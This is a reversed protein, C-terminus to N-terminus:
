AFAVSLERSILSAQAVCPMCPVMCMVLGGFLICQDAFSFAARPWGIRRTDPRSWLNKEEEERGKSRQHLKLLVCVRLGVLLWFSAFASLCSVTFSSPWSPPRAPCPLAPCLCAQRLNNGVHGPPHHDRARSGCRKEGVCLGSGASAASSTARVAGVGGGVGETRADFTPLAPRLLEDM